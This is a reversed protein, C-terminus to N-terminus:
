GESGSPGEFRVPIEGMETTIPGDHAYYADRVTFVKGNALELTVTTNELRQLTDSM